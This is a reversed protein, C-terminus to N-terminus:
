LHRDKSPYSELGLVDMAQFLANAVVTFVAVHLNEDKAGIVRVREYYGHFAQCTKVVQETLLQSAYTEPMQQLIELCKHTQFLLSSVEADFPTNWDLTEPMDPHFDLGLKLFLSDMRVMANQIYPASNGTFNLVHTWDFVYDKIRNFKLDYFKMGGVLTKRLVDERRSPDIAQIQPLAHVVGLGSAMLDDLYLSEGEKTKLPKGDSGVIAGFGLHILETSADVLGALRAVAFVQEFHLSQRKDVVYVIRDPQLHEQRWALAALDYLAYLFNGNSKQLVLPSQGELFCVASGDESRVAVGQVLLRNLLTACHPAYFSEGQTHSADMLLGFTQFIRYADVLSVESVAKWLALLDARREQQLAVATQEARLRFVEDNKQLQQATKYAETLAENSSLYQPNDQLFALLGGFQNGWDGVHNVPFVTDGAYRHVRTVFDGIFMSRIHGIHMKKAVNAGCYDVVVRKSPRTVTLVPQPNMRVSVFGPGTLEVSSYPNPALQKLHDVLTEAKFSPDVKKAGLALSTQYQFAEFSSYVAKALGVPLNHTKAFEALHEQFVSLNSM